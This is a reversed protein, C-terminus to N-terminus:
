KFDLADELLKKVRPLTQLVDIEYNQLLYAFPFFEQGNEVWGVFWRVQVRQNNEAITSGLGTKGFLKWGPSMEEKFLLNKTMQLASSSIPLEKHILKQVFDVQEKPSIKLSSSVWAPNLPGPPATGASFDQNGYEFSSLYQEIQDSGLQLAIRKSFWVCSRIMWTKPTQSSKWSDSFDDYGEQFDWTPNQEDQLVGADYGMLSLAINFSCAPTVREELSLGFERIVERTSDKILIFNENGSLQQSSVGMFVLLIFFVQM